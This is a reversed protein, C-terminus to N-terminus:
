FKAFFVNGQSFLSHWEEVNFHKVKFSLGGPAIQCIIKVKKLKRIIFLFFPSPDRLSWSEFVSFSLCYNHKKKTKKGLMVWTISEQWKGQPETRSDLTDRMPFKINKINVKSMKRLKNGNTRKSWGSHMKKKKDCVCVYVCM